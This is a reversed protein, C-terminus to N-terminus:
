FCKVDTSNDFAKVRTERKEKRFLVVMKPM